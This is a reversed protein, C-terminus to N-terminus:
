FVLVYMSKKSKPVSGERDVDVQSEDRKRKKKAEKAMKRLRRREKRQEKTETQPEVSKLVRKKLKTGCQFCFNNEIGNETGCQTCFVVPVSTSSM